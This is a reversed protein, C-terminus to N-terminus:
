RGRRGGAGGPPGRCARSRRGQIPRRRRVAGEQRALRAEHAAGVRAVEDGQRREGRRLPRGGRPAGPKGEADPGAEVVVEQDAGRHRAHAHAAREGDAPRRRRRDDQADEFRAVARENEAALAVLELARHDAEGVGPADVGHQVDGGGRADAVVVHGHPHGPADAIEVHAEGRRGRERLILQEGQHGEAGRAPLRGPAGTAGEGALRGRQHDPLQEVERAAPLIGQGAGSRVM